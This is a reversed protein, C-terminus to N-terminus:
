EKSLYNSVGRILKILDLDSEDASITARYLYYNGTDTEKRLSASVSLCVFTATKVKARTLQDKNLYLSIIETWARLADLDYRLAQYPVPMKKLTEQNEKKM